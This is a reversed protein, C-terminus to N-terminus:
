SGFRCINDTKTNDSRTWLIIHSYEVGVHVFQVHLGAHVITCTPKRPCHVAETVFSLSRNTKSQEHQLFHEVKHFELQPEKNHQAIPRPM